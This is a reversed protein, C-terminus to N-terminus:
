AASRTPRTPPRLRACARPPAPGRRADNARLLSCAAPPASRDARLPRSAAYRPAIGCVSSWVAASFPRTASTSRSIAARASRSALSSETRAARRGGREADGSVGEVAEGKAGGWGAARRPAATPVSPAKQPARHGSPARRAFLPIPKKTSRPGGAPARRPAPPALRLRASVARPGRASRNSAAASPQPCPDRPPPPSAARPPRPRRRWPRPARGERPPPPQLPPKTLLTTPAPEM